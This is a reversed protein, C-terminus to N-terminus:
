AGVIALVADVVRRAREPDDFLAQVSEHDNTAVHPARDLDRTGLDACFVARIVDVVVARRDEGRGIRARMAAIADAALGALHEDDLEHDEVLSLSPPEANRGDETLLTVVPARKSGMPTEVYAVYWEPRGRMARLVSEIEREVMPPDSASWDGTTLGRRYAWSDLPWLGTGATSAVGVWVLIHTALSLLWRDHGLERALWAPVRPRQLAGVSGRRRRHGDVTAARLRVALWAELNVIPGHANRLVYEVVSEVDDHFHDLCGDALNVVSRSCVVHGRRLELIRTLRSFVIPWVMQYVAGILSSRETTSASAIRHALVGRNAYARVVEIDYRGLTRSSADVIADVRRVSPLSRSV